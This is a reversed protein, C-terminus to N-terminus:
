ALFVVAITVAAGVATGVIGSFLGVKLEHQRRRQEMWVSRRNDLVLDCSPLARRLVLNRWTPRLPDLTKVFHHAIPRLDPREADTNAVVGFSNVTVDVLPNPGGLSVDEPDVVKVTISWIDTRGVLDDM